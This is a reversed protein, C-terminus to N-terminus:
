FTSDFLRALTKFSNSVVVAKNYWTANHCHFLSKVISYILNMPDVSSLRAISSALDVDAIDPAM